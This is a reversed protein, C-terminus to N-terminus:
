SKGSQILEGTPYERDLWAMELAAVAFGAILSPMWEATKPFGPNWVQAPGWRYEIGNKVKGRVAAKNIHIEGDEGHEPSFKVTINKVGDDELRRTVEM